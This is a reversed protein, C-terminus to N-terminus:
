SSWGQASILVKPAASTVTSRAHRMSTAPALLRALLAQTFTEDSATPAAEVHAAHYLVEGAAGRELVVRQWAEVTAAQSDVDAANLSVIDLQRLAQGNPGLVSVQFAVGREHVAMEPLTKRITMILQQSLLVRRQVDLLLALTRREHAADLPILQRRSYVPQAFIRGVRINGRQPERALAFLVAHPGANGLTWPLQMVPADSVGAAQAYSSLAGCLASPELTPVVALYGGWCSAENHEGARDFALRRFLEPLGDPHTRSYDYLRRGPAIHLSKATERLAVYQTQVLDEAEYPYLLNLRAGSFWRFLVHAVEHLPPSTASAAAIAPDRAFPCEPAHPPRDPMGVLVYVDAAPQRVFLLPPRQGPARCRCAFWHRQRWAVELCGRAVPSTEGRIYHDVLSAAEYESLSRVASPLTGSQHILVLQMM